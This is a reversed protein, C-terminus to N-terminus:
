APLNMEEPNGQHDDDCSESLGSGARREKSSRTERTPTLQFFYREAKTCQKGGAATCDEVKFWCRTHTAAATQQFLLDTKFTWRHRRRSPPLLLLALWLLLIEFSEVGILSRVGLGLPQTGPDM